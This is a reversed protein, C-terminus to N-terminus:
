PVWFGDSGCTRPKFWDRYCSASVPFNSCRNPHYTQGRGCCTTYTGLQGKRSQRERAVFGWHSSAVSAFPCFLCLANGNYITHAEEKQGLM